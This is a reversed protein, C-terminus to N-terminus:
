RTFYKVYVNRIEKRHSEIYNTAPLFELDFKKATELYSPNIVEKIIECFSHLVLCSYLVYPLDNINIDMDKRSCGFKAKLRGFACEIVMKGLSFGYGFFQEEPTRNGNAFKKVIFPLLPYAPEGLLCIPKSPENEVIVRPCPFSKVM